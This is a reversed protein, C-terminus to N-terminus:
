TPQKESENTFLIQAKTVPLKEEWYLEYDAWEMQCTKVLKVIKEKKNVKSLDNISTNSDNWWGQKEFPGMPELIDYVFKVGDSLRSGLTIEDLVLRGECIANVKRLLAIAVIQDYPEDPITSIKLNADKFKDIMKKEINQIFVCSDLCENFLLNIREMAVNQEHISEVEVSMNLVINYHNMYFTNKFFVSAHLDFSREIRTSM